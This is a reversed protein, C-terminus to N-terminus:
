VYFHHTTYTLTTLITLYLGWFKYPILSPPQSTSNTQCNKEFTKSANKIMKVAGFKVLSEELTFLVESCHDWIEWLIHIYQSPNQLQWPILDSASRVYHIFFFNKPTIVQQKSWCWHTLSQVSICFCVKSTALNCFVCLWNLFGPLVEFAWFNVDLFFHLPHAVLGTVDELVGQISADASFVTFTHLLLLKGLIALFISTKELAADSSVSGKAVFAPTTLWWKFVTRLFKVWTKSCVQCTCRGWDQCLAPPCM